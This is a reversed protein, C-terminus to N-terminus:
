IDPHTKKYRNFATKFARWEWPIGFKMIAKSGTLQGEGVTEIREVWDHCITPLSWWVSQSTVKRNPHKKRFAEVMEDIQSQRNGQAEIGVRTNNNTTIKSDTGLYSQWVKVADGFPIKQPYKLSSKIYDSIHIVAHNQCDRNLDAYYLRNDTEKDPRCEDAFIFGRNHWPYLFVSIEGEIISNIYFWVDDNLENENFFPNILRSIDILAMKESIDKRVQRYEDYSSIISEDKSHFDSFWDELTKKKVFGESTMLYAVGNFNHIISRSRYDKLSKEYITKDRVSTKILYDIHTETLGLGRLWNRMENSNFEVM